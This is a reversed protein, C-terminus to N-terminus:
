RGGGAYYVWRGSLRVQTLTFAMCIVAFIWALAAGYGMELYEFAWRYIHLAYFWTAYAPGGYTAVFAISFVKLAGIIGMVMNFFLTPSIMPLTVHRFRAGPGAGDISAADYLEQPVGQLGALFILMRNGGIGAWLDIMIISPIAWKTSSFWGPGEIGVKGLLYNVPGIEPHLLWSWLLAMAVAPTLHPLFFMTRFVTTGKMGRNLLLALLLAGTIGAPVAVIAFQFTRRLSSWFLDDEFFARRYNALGIFEPPTIMDYITLSLLFSAVIPGAAFILLGAIGPLAFITGWLAERARAKTEYGMIRALRSRAVSPPRRALEGTGM